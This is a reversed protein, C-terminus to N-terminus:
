ADIKWNITEGAKLPILATDGMSLQAPIQWATKHLTVTGANRPLQYFDAGFFSAFGELQHLAAAREFAEAYFELATHATYAGACGCASEKSAQSHPASDTGLFFQQNGSTAAAILADQHQSRKLIPLCYYHPRINGALMHNRNFLLHHATITSIPLACTQVGTVGIDRIGDEAQFFFCYM